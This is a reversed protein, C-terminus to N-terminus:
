KETRISEIKRPALKELLVVKLNKYLFDTSDPTYDIPTYWNEIVLKDIAVQTDCNVTTFSDTVVTDCWIFVLTDGPVLTDEVLPDVFLWQRYGIDFDALIYNLFLFTDPTDQETTYFLWHHQFLSDSLNLIFHKNEVSDVQHVIYQSNGIRLFILLICNMLVIKM